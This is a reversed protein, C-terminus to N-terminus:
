EDAADSTYLLCSIYRMDNSRGAVKTALIIESRRGTQAIWDGIFRETDGQTEEMPPVPYMEAADFLNVGKSLAFDMQEFAECRNNQQGWTMTGLGIISVEIETNGLKRYIM